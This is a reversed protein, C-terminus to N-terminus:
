VEEITTAILQVTGSGDERWATRTVTEMGSIAVGEGDLLEGHTDLWQARCGDLEGSRIKRALEELKAAFIERGKGKIRNSADPARGYGNPAEFQLVKATNEM